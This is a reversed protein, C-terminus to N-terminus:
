WGPNQQMNPNAFIESYPIPLTMKSVDPFSTNPYATTADSALRTVTMSNRKLDILRKGELPFERHKEDLIKTIADALSTFPTSVGANRANRVALYDAYAGTLDGGKAKAEARVLYMEATRIVKINAVGPTATPGYYKWYVLNGASSRYYANIRYDSTNYKSALTNAVYWFFGLSPSRYFGGMNTNVSGAINIQQFIVEPADTTTTNLGAGAIPDIWLNNIQTPTAFLSKGVLAQSAFTTSNAYDGIELYVQAKMARLAGISIRKNLTNSPNLAIAADLDALVKQYSVQMNERSPKDYIHSEDSTTVYACGLASPDYKPSFDKLIMFHMFARMGLAEAKVQNISLGNTGANTVKDINEIVRNATYITRYASFWLAEVDNDQSTFTRGWLFVGSGNNSGAIRAEDTMMSQIFGDRGVPMTQYTNLLLRDLFTIDSLTEPSEAIADPNTDDLLGTCSVTTGGVVLAMMM